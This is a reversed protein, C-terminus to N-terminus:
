LRSLGSRGIGAIDTVGTLGMTLDLEALINSIVSEVGQQGAIALGYVYPRGLLVADAGLALALYVDTGSRIGSDLLLTPDAGIEERIAVLADLTAISNDVQRGGHNSVVIADAGLDFARRADDPRLIGKLVIPLQTRTRLTALDAWSLSPKSFTSLFREVAALPVPSRLNAVTSGPHNRACALLTRLAGLSPRGRRAPSGEVSSRVQAMFVPDSVYQAIGIGRTFPLSGLNLDAPRWGLMTSDLTVVLAGASIKEARRILSNVFDEDSSWYLQFWRRGDPGMASACDEMSSCGQNSLVYPVGQSAAARAIKLDSEPSVLEAAGIPALLLPSTLREGLLDIGLDREAAGAAMAPQVQWRDFASRNNRMSQGLGAGGAVYAWATSSCASQAKAELAAFDAPVDPRYGRAGDLYITRQRDPGRGM